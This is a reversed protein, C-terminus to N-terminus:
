EAIVLRHSSNSKLKVEDTKRLDQLRKTIISARIDDGSTRAIEINDLILKLKIGTVNNEKAYDLARMVQDEHILTLVIESHMRLRQLM